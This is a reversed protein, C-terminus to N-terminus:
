DFRRRTVVPALFDELDEVAQSSPHVAVFMRM